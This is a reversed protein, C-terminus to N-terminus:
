PATAARARLMAQYADLARAANAAFAEPVPPAGAEPALTRPAGVAQGPAADPTAPGAPVPSGFDQLLADFAAASLQPLAAPAAAQAPVVPAPAPAIAQPTAPAAPVAAAALVPADPAPAPASESGDFAALVWGEPTHGTAEGIGLSAAALLFGAPGGYLTSGALRDADTITDGTIARYITGIVPLHQLPNVIDLFRGFSFGDDDGTAPAPTPAPAPTAPSVPALTRAAAPIAAQDALSLREPLAARDPRQLRDPFAPYWRAEAVAM